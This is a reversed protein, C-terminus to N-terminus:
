TGSLNTLLITKFLSNLVQGEPVPPMITTGGGGGGGAIVMPRQQSGGGGGILIPMLTISSQPLNYDPYQQIQEPVSQQMSPVPVVMPQSAQVTSPKEKLKMENWDYGKSKAWIKAQQQQEPTLNTWASEIRGRAFPNSRNDWAMQFKQQMDASPVTPKPVSPMLKTQSITAAQQTGPVSQPNVGPAISSKESSKESQEKAKEATLPSPIKQAASIAGNPNVHSKNKWIEFHLHEPYARAAFLKAVQQGGYVVTGPAVTPVVHKYVSQEGGGHDLTIITDGAEVSGTYRVKGTKWAVVPSGPPLGGIDQGSHGGYSRPAGYEGGKVGVSRNSIVGRPLPFFTDKSIPGDYPQTPEDPPTPKGGEFSKEGFGEQTYNNGSEPISGLSAKEFKIVVNEFKDLVQPLTVKSASAALKQKQEQQKLKAKTKEKVSGEGTAKEYARDALYGGGFAGLSGVAAGLVFGLGPIPVLTQGIAGALAVGALGGAAAGAASGVAGAGAKGASEGESIGQAFDLGALAASLIPLGRIGPLRLKKGKPIPKGAKPNPKPKTGGKGGKGGKRGGFLDGVLGAADLAGSALGSLLSGASGFTSSVNINALKKIKKEDPLKISQLNTVETTMFKLFENYSRQTSRMQSKSRGINVINTFASVLPSKLPTDKKPTAM